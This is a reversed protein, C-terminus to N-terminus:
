MRLAKWSLGSKAVIFEGLLCFFRGVFLQLQWSMLVITVWTWLLVENGWCDTTRRVAYDIWWSSLMTWLRRAQIISFIATNLLTLMNHRLFSYYQSIDKRLWRLSFRADLKITLSERCCVGYGFAVLMSKFYACCSFITGFVYIGIDPESEPKCVYLTGDVNISEGVPIIRGHFDRCGPLETSGSLAVIKENMWFICVRKAM